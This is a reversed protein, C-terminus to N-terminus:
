TTASAFINVANNQPLKAKFHDHCIITVDDVYAISSAPPLTNFIYTM